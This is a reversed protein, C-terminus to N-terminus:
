ARGSADGAPDVNTPHQPTHRENKNSHGSARRLDHAQTSEFSEDVSTPKLEVKPAQSKQDSKLNENKKGTDIKSKMFARTLNEDSAIQKPNLNVM